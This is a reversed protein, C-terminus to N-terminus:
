DGWSKNEKHCCTIFDQLQESTRVEQSNFHHTLVKGSTWLGVHRAQARWIFGRQMLLCGASQAMLPWFRQHPSHSTGSGPLSYWPVWTGQFDSHSILTSRLPSSSSLQTIELWGQNTKARTPQLMYLLLALFLLELKWRALWRGLLPRVAAPLSLAEQTDAEHNERICQVHHCIVTGSVCLTYLTKCSCALALVHLQSLLSHAQFFKQYIKQCNCAM